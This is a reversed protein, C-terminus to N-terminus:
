LETKNHRPELVRRGLFYQATICLRLSLLGDCCPWTELLKWQGNPGLMCTMINILVCFYPELDTFRPLLMVTHMVGRLM